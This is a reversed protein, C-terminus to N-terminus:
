CCDNHACALQWGCLYDEAHAYNEKMTFNSSNLLLIPSDYTLAINDYSSMHLPADCSEGYTCPPQYVIISNQTLSNSDEKSPTPPHSWEKKEQEIPEENEEEEKEKELSKSEKFGDEYTNIPDQL